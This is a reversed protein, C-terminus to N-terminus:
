LVQKEHLRTCVFCIQYLRTDKNAYILLLYLNLSGSFVASIFKQLNKEFGSSTSLCQFAWTDPREKPATQDPNAIGAVEKDGLM